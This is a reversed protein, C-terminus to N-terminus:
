STERYDALLYFLYIGASPLGKKIVAIILNMICKSWFLFFYIYICVGMGKSYIYICVFFSFNCCVCTQRIFTQVQVERSFRIHRGLTIREDKGNKINWPPIFPLRM